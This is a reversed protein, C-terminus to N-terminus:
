VKWDDDNEEEEGEDFNFDPIRNQKEQFIAKALNIQLSCNYDSTGHSGFYISKVNIMPTLEGYKSVIDLGDIAQSCKKDSFFRTSINEGTMKVKFYATEKGNKNKTCVPKIIYKKFKKSISKQISQFLQNVEQNSYSITYGCIDKSAKSNSKFNYMPFPGYAEVTPLSIFLGCPENKENQYSIEFIKMKFNKTKILKPESIVLKDVNFETVNICIAPKSM